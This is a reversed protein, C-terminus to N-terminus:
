ETIIIPRLRWSITLKDGDQPTFNMTKRAFMVGGTSDSFLGREKITPPTGKFTFTGTLVATDNTFETTDTTITASVRGGEETYTAYDLEALLATQSPDEATGDTGLAIYLPKVASQGTLFKVVERVGDQTWTNKGIDHYVIEGNREVITEVVGEIGVKVVSM